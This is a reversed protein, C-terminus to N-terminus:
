LDGTMGRMCKTIDDRVKEMEEGMQDIIDMLEQHNYKLLSKGRWMGVPKHGAGAQVLKRGCYPCFEFMPGSYVNMGTAKARIIRDSLDQASNMWDECTCNGLSQIIIRPM